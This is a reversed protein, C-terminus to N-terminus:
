ILKHLYIPESKEATQDQESQNYFLYYKDKAM